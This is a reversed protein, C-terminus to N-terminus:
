VRRRARREECLFTKIEEVHIPVKTGVTKWRLLLAHESDCVDLKKEGSLLADFGGGPYAHYLTHLEGFWKRYGDMLDRFGDPFKPMKKLYPSIRHPMYRMWVDVYENIDIMPFAEPCTRWMMNRRTDALRQAINDTEMDYRQLIDRAQRLEDILTNEEPNYLPLVSPAINKLIVEVAM